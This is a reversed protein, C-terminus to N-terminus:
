AQERRFLRRSLGCLEMRLLADSPRGRSDALREQSVFWRRVSLVDVSGRENVGPKASAGYTYGATTTARRVREDCDGNPYALGTVPQGAIESLIARSTTLEVALATDSCQPLLPHTMTHSGIEHGEDALARVQASTMIRDDDSLEIPGAERRLREIWAQREQPSLKKAQMLAAKVDAGDIKQGSRAIANWSAGAMDYWPPDDTDVLGAVVYFTARLGHERLIPAARHINDRYGDDFTIAAFPREPRDGGRWMALALALPEVTYREALLRCHARFTEPTVVLDPDHYGNRQMEPLVRHYCLVTLGDRSGAEFGSLVGSRAGLTAIASRIMSKM